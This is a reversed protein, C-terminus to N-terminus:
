HENEGDSLNDNCKGTKQINEGGNLPKFQVTFPDCIPGPNVTARFLGAYKLKNNYSTSSLSYDGEM